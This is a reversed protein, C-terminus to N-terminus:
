LVQLWDPESNAISAHTFSFKEFLDNRFSGDELITAIAKKPEPDEAIKSKLAVEGEVPEEEVKLTMEEVEVREPEEDIPCVKEVKLM